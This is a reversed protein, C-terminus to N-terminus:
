IQARAEDLLSRLRRVLEDEASSGSREIDDLLAEIRVVLLKYYDPGPRPKESKSTVILVKRM